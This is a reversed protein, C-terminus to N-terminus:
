RVASARFVGGVNTSIAQRQGRRQVRDPACVPNPALVGAKPAALVGAKPAPPKPAGALVGAKPAGELVGANPALAGAKPIPPLEGKPALVGAKPAGALVGANPPKPAVALVGAKPAGALVGAKPLPLVKPPPKPTLPLSWSACPM